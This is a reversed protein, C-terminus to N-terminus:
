PTCNEIPCVLVSRAGGDHLEYYYYNVIMDSAARTDPHRITKNPIIVGQMGITFM